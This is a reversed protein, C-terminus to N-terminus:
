MIVFAKDFSFFPGTVPGKQEIAYVGIFGLQSFELFLWEKPAEQIAFAKMEAYYGWRAIIDDELQECM